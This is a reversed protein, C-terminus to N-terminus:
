IFRHNCNQCHFSLQGLANFVHTSSCQPCTKEIATFSKESVQPSANLAHSSTKATKYPINPYNVWFSKINQEIMVQVLQLRYSKDAHCYSQDSNAAKIHSQLYYNDTYVEIVEMVFIEDDLLSDVKYEDREYKKREAKFKSKVSSIIEKKVTLADTITLMGNQLVRNESYDEEYLISLNRSNLIKLFCKKAHQHDCDFFERQKNKRHKELEKHLLREIEDAHEIMASYVLQFESPLSTNSLESIRQKPDKETFGIKLLGQLSDNHAFYIWGKM